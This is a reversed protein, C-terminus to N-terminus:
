TAFKEMRAVTVLLSLAQRKRLNYVTALFSNKKGSLQKIIRLVLRKLM